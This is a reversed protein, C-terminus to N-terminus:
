YYMNKFDKKKFSGGSSMGGGGGKRKIFFVILFIAVGLLIIGGVAGVIIWILGNNSNGEDMKTTSINFKFNGNNNTYEDKLATMDLVFKYTTTADNDNIVRDLNKCFFQSESNENKYLNLANVFEEVNFNYGDLVTIELTLQSSSKSLSIQQNKNYVIDDFKVKSIGSDFSLEAVCADDSYLAYIDCDDSILEKGFTFSLTQDKTILVDDEGDVSLYWGICTYAKGSLAITGIEYSTDYVPNLTLNSYRLSDNGARFVYGPKETSVHGNEDFIKTTFNLAFTTKPETKIRYNTGATYRNAQLITIEFGNEIAKIEYPSSEENVTYFVNGSADVSTTIAVKETSGIMVAKIDYFKSMSESEENEEDVKCFAFTMKVSDGYRCSTAEFSSKLIKSNTSLDVDFNFNGIFTQLGAQTGSLYWIKEFDWVEFSNWKLKKFYTLENTLNNPNEQTSIINDYNNSNLYKYDNLKAIREHGNNNFHIDSLNGITITGFIEGFVEGVNAGALTKRNWSILDYLAVNVVSARNGAVTGAVGGVNVNGNFDTTLDCNVRFGVVGFLIKSSTLSGVLGGFNAKKGDYKEFNFNIVNSNAQRAIVHTLDCLTANGVLLGFDLNSNVNLNNYTFIGEFQLNTLDCDDAKGVLAGVYNDIALGSTINVNRLSFNKITAHNASGFFGVAQSNESNESLDLTLNSIEFGRGDFVGQYPNDKTGFTTTLIRGSMNINETLVFNTKSYNASNYNNFIEELKDASDVTEANVTEMLTASNEAFGLNKAVNFSIGGFTFAICFVFLIPLILKKMDVGKFYNYM